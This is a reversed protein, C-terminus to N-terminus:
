PIATFGTPYPAPKAKKGVWRAGPLEDVTTRNLNFKRFNGVSTQKERSAQLAGQSDTLPNEFSVAM